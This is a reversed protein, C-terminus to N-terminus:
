PEDWLSFGLETATHADIRPDVAESCASLILVLLGALTLRRLPAPPTRRQPHEVSM